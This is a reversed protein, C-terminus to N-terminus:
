EFDFPHDKVPKNDDAYVQEYTITSNKRMWLLTLVTIVASVTGALALSNMQITSEDKLMEPYFYALVILLADYVFHGLIAVWLSGSYWYVAGLFIGLVFRPLFGYFQMHLASFLIASVIIGAWPSKFMKILLRQAVGRFLLEEGVAALGAICIINLLLDTVTHKSLLAQIAKAAEKEANEMWRKIEDPFQVHRNWEGLLNILPISVIMIAIGALIYGPKSPATLGLYKTTNTSFLRACIFVPILFLGIFQIVQMGRLVYIVGPKTYDWKAMDTLESLKMGATSALIITGILSIVILSVLCIGILILFQSWAPRTKLSGQM